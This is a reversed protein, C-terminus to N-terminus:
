IVNFLIVIRLELLREAPISFVLFFLASVPHDVYFPLTFSAPPCISISSMALNDDQTFRLIEGMM